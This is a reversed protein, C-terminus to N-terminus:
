ALLRSILGLYDILSRAGNGRRLVPLRVWRVQDAAYGTYQLGRNRECGCGAVASETAQGARGRARGGVAVAAVARDRACSGLGLLM